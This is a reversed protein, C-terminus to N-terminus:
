FVGLNPFSILNVHTYVDYWVQSGGKYLIRMIVDMNEYDNTDM